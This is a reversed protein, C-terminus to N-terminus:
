YQEEAPRTEVQLNSLRDCKEAELLILKENDPIDCELIRNLRYDFRLDKILNKM